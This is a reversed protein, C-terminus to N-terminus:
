KVSVSNITIKTPAQKLSDGTKLLVPTEQALAERMTMVEEEQCTATNM